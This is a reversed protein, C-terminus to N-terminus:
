AYSGSFFHHRATVDLSSSSDAAALNDTDTTDHATHRIAPSPFCALLNIARGGRARVLPPHAPPALALPTQKSVQPSASRFGKILGRRRFFRM